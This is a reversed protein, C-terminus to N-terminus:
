QVERRGELWARLARVKGRTAIEYTPRFDFSRVVTDSEFDVRRDPDGEYLRVGECLVRHCFIPGLEELDVADIDEVGTARSLEGGIECTEWWRERDSKGRCYVLGIDLDSLPGAQGRAVSGFLYAAAVTPHGALVPRVIRALEEPSPIDSGRM